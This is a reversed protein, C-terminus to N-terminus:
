SGSQLRTRADQALADESSKGRIDLYKRYADAATAGSKVRGQYYLVPPFFTFTPEEDLFLALAEGRRSFCREFEVNAQIMLDAALYAQGLEFHGIWTDLLNTSENLLQIARRADNARLALMGEIIKAYAQPEAYLESALGKAIEQARATAGADAFVRAALFRIKGAPSTALAREASAVAMKNERLIVQAIGMMAYKAAGREADGAKVDAAASRSLTVIADSYRGQYMAIDALGKAAYSAGLENVKELREYTIAAQAVQGQGMQSFALALLTFVGQPEIQRAEKEANEFDSNYSMYTSLNERYLPRNPLIRVVEQMQKIAEPMSRLYTQCLALNNRAAADAQYKAVLDSYQKVCAQYDNTIYFYLGQTRFQERETMGDLHKVAEEAHKRAEQHRDLNRSTIALGAHALGFNPDLAVAKNFHGRAEDNQSRSLAEMAKAYEGVVELSAASLKENAFRKAEDSTDDGLAERVGAALSTAVGLVKDKGNARGSDNTIEEGTVARVARISVTYRNNQAAISGSVVVNVGQKVAIELAAREDLQAPPRVGLNRRIADRDLATIFGASELALKLVPELTRDLAQDGTQNQFDAILVSVPEHQVPIAPGKSLWWTLAVFSVLVAAAAAGTRWTLRRIVPLPKGEDDLKALDAILDATTAYRDTAENQICKVIIRDLAEPIDPDVSRPAPLPEQMRLNLEAIASGTRTARTRGLLLDYLILGFSYIDSRQDVPQARAQEPAMYEITGVVSGASTQGDKRRTRVGKDLVAALPASSATSRAVGFDMILAEGNEELMINAPKLDRHVVGAEHAAALGSAVQRALRMVRNVSLRGEERLFTALDKGELYPMTIYKIGDVEGMDHVRVINKHTVQRALLLEQKFRRELERATQPDSAIEPRVTKLAVVVGLDRDWAAYVAGMGGQGLLRQIQYRTGLSQGILSAASEAASTGSGPTAPGKSDVGGLGLRTADPEPLGLRTEDAGNFRMVTQDPDSRRLVTQDADPVSLRTHDADPVRLVTQDPDGIRTVTPDFAGTATLSAGCSSCRVATADASEGCQSCTTLIHIAM